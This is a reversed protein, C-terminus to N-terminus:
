SSEGYRRYQFESIKDGLGQDIMRMVGPELM